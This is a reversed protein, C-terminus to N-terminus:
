FGPAHAFFFLHPQRTDTGARGHAIQQPAVPLRDCGRAFEVVLRRFAHADEALIEHEEPRVAVVYRSERITTGM